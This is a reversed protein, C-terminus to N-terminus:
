EINKLGLSDKYVRTLYLYNMPNPRFNKIEKKAFRVAADFYLPIAPVEEALINDMQQFIKVREEGTATFSKQYLKDFSPNSFRTYNPGNPSENASYFLAMYNEPDPYDAIWSGRFVPLKGSAMQQRFSPGPVIDIETKIGILALDHQIYELLDVYDETSTLTIPPLGKGNPYGAKRLLEAALSPNYTFVSSTPKYGPISLPIIGSTAATPISKRLHKLMKDRDFGVAIAKRVLPNM